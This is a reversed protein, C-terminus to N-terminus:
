FRTAPPRAPPADPLGIRGAKRFPLAGYGGLQLRGSIEYDLGRATGAAGIQRLVDHLSTVASLEVVKEGLAPVTFPSDSVGRAFQLRNVDVTFSVGEIELARTNPNLIRLALGIRQEFVNGGRFSVDAVSVDPAELGFPVSACGAALLSAVPALWWRSSM